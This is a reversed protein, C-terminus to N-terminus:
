PNLEPFSVSGVMQVLTEFSSPKVFFWNAGGALAREKDDRSLSATFVLVPVNLFEKQSRLWQLFELGSLCPLKLDLVIAQPLPFQIRDVFVGEGTLYARAQEADPVRHLVAQLKARECAKQLLIADNEDDEVHLITLPRFNKRAM